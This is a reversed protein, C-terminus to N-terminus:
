GNTKEEEENALLDWQIEYAKSVVENVDPWDTELVKKAPANGEALGMLEKVNTTAKALSILMEAIEMAGDETKIKAYSEPEILDRALNAKTFDTPSEKKSEEKKEVSKVVPAKKQATKV